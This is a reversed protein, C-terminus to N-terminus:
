ARRVRVVTTAEAQAHARVSLVEAGLKLSRLAKAAKTVENAASAGKIALVEGGSAVLPWCWQLLRPLPAVARNTVVDAPEGGEALYDEARGRHVRVRDDLQLREIVLELFEVRRQLPELLTIRLDPRTLALPIGPLGAGSGVDLVSCGEAILSEIACSNLVHRQWLREAERPGILGWTIGEDALLAVYREALDRRAGFVDTLVAASPRSAARRGEVQPENM